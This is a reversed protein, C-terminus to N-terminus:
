YTNQQLVGGSSVIDENPIPRAFLRSNKELTYTVTSSPLIASGSYAYFTKSMLVDDGSDSNNNYRRIDYWRMTFPLERRREELVKQLAETQNTASLNIVSAPATADMRVVRLENATNLGEQWSGQRVQCEAKILIMESVGPGNFIQDKFFFIYGPYEYAPNVVSRSYSYNQVIHYKYRLDYTQDYLNLLEQSPMYWWHGNTLLRYYYNEGWEMRDTPDTQLDHTYPYTIFVNTPGSGDSPYITVEDQFSSFHMETNYNRLYSYETLAMEAYQKANVYDNLALYFRAAFAYVAPKSARWTRNKGNTQELDVDLELAAELDAKMFNWTEELSVREASEEFSTSQKVPLGLESKNADTYPLCFTNVLQFYSYARIFRAELKLKEKADADGDVGDVNLLVLNAVFIKKWEGTWFANDESPLSEIDWTAYQIQTVNYSSSRADYLEPVLGFDDSGFIVNYNQESSFTSYNNLLSELHDVTSVVLSSSKSPKVDLYKECSVIAFIVLLSLIYKFIKM